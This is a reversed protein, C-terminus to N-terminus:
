LDSLFEELDLPRPIVDHVPNVVVYSCPYGGLFKRFDEVGDLPLPAFPIIPVQKQAERLYAIAKGQTDFVCLADGGEDTPVILASINMRMPLIGRELDPEPQPISNDVAMAVWYRQRNTEDEM